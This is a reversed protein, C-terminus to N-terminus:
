VVNCLPNLEIRMLHSECIIAQLTFTSNQMPDVNLEMFVHGHSCAKLIIEM